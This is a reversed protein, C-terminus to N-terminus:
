KKHSGYFKASIFRKRYLTPLGAYSTSEQTEEVIHVKSTDIIVLNDPLQLTKMMLRRASAFQHEDWRRKTAPLRRRSKKCDGSGEEVEVLVNNDKDSIKLVVIDVVRVMRGSRTKMLTTEGNVLEEGLDELSKYTGQGWKSIDIQNQELLQVLESANLGIPPSVLASIDGGKGTPSTLRVRQPDCESALMWKYFKTYKKENQVELGGGGIVGIRALVNADRTTVTGTIIDKKYVTRVGPFSPSEFDEEISEVSKSDFVIRCDGMTLADTATRQAAEAFSEHPEKKNGPLQTMGDRVRGDPYREATEILYKTGADTQVSIRLLIVEVVRVLSKHRTADILLQSAGRKIEAVFEEFSKAQGKGFGGTDISYDGLLKRVSDSTIDGNNHENKLIPATVFSAYLDKAVSDKWWGYKCTRGTHHDEVVFEEGSSSLKVTRSVPSASHDGQRAAHLRDVLERRREKVAANAGFERMAPKWDDEMKAVPGASAPRSKMDAIFRHKLADGAEIREEETRDLAKVLLDAADEPAEKPIRLKKEKTDKESNFPFKGCFLGFMLVGLAWCDVKHGYSGRYVEPPWYKDTGCRSKMREGPSFERATGMDNLVIRNQPHEVDPYKMLYNDGKVDRHVIRKSHMHAIPEWIQRTIRRVADEPIMGKAKWHRMMGQIMDGGLHCEMVICVFCKEELVERMYIISPHVLAKLVKVERDIVEPPSEAQDVLKVAWEENTAREKCLYVVGFAGEGLKKGLSYKELLRM